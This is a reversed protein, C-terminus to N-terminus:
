AGHAEAPLTRHREDFGRAVLWISTTVHSLAMPMAMLAVPGYGLFGRLPVGIFHLVVTALGFVAVARPVVAFRYLAGYFLFIWGDILALESLHAWRRTAGVVSALAM